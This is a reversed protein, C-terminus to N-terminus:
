YSEYTITTYIAVKHGWVNIHEYLTFAGCLEKCIDQYKPPAFHPSAISATTDLKYVCVFRVLPLEGPKYEPQKWNSDHIHWQNDQNLSKM